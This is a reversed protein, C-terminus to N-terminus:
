AAASSNCAAGQVFRPMTSLVSVRRFDPLFSGPAHFSIKWRQTSDVCFAFHRKTGGRITATRHGFTLKQPKAGRPLSVTFRVVGRLPKSNRPWLALSGQTALWGDSSRNELLALRAITRPRWLAFSPTLAVRTAEQFTATMGYQEFLVPTRLPGSPTQLTGDPRIRVTPAVFADTPQADGLLVEHSVSRNWYLQETLLGDPAPWTAIATVDAVHTDDVWTLSPAAFASRVRASLDVDAATAGLSALGLFVLSFTFAVRARLGYAVLTAVACAAGLYVALLLSPSGIGVISQLRVVAWLLPSDTSGTSVAFGSVPVHTAALLLLAAAAVVGLRIPRGNKLYLGFAIPILPLLSFLYREQFHGSGNSAYLGAELLVAAAYLVALVAFSTESRGRATALGVLAGPVLVAGSAVALLFLDIYVWHLTANGTRLHVVGGYYGLLRGPGLAVGCLAGVLLVVLSLRHTRLADRRRTALLAGFYAAFLVVYQVRAFTALFALALFALQARPAPRTLAVVAAYLAALVLPYAVPDALTRASFALDPITVAFLACALSYRSGLGVRRALLYVPIAALSMFLANETQVLHYAVATPALAWIPAAALPGLLAPFHALHGRILPLGSSGLSRALATYIYEDPFYMPAPHALAGVTRVLTSAAVILGLALRTSRALPVAAGRSRRWCVILAIRPTNEVAM